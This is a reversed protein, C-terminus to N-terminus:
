PAWCLIERFFCLNGLQGLAFTLHWSCGPAALCLRTNNIYLLYFIQTITLNVLECLLFLTTVDFDYQFMQLPPKPTVM